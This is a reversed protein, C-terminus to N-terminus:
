SVDRMSHNSSGGPQAPTAIPRLWGGIRTALEGPTIPSKTIWDIVGLEWASRQMAENESNTLM